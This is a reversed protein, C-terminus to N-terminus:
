VGARQLRSDAPLGSCVLAAPLLVQKEATRSGAPGFFGNLSHVHFLATAGWGGLLAEAIGIV